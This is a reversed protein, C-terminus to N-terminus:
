CMNQIFYHLLCIWLTDISLFQSILQNVKTDVDKLSNWYFDGSELPGRVVYILIPDGKLMM